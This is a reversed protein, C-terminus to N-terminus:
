ERLFVRRNNRARVLRTVTDTKFAHMRDLLLQPDDRFNTVAGTEAWIALARREAAAHDSQSGILSFEFNAFGPITGLTRYGIFRVADYPDGLLQTLYPAMWSTGSVQQAAPWAMSQAVIARQGADGSLLWLISAAISRDDDTLQPRAIRYWESLYQSTWESTKDLHCLNCASPRGTRISDAVSPSTIQHSRITKLLGYTTLPMHCNYCSSGTSPAAHKTHQSPNQRFKQHCQLCAENDAMDTKLQDNAWEAPARPDAPSEHLTHCSFCSLTHSDDRANRYCPSEIMANYERGTVRVMGDPWFSDKVFNPDDNLIGKLTPADLNRTPQALFRTKTLDDGPRYPFGQFNAEREGKEDYFEWVSHCQGCVQSGRKRDLMAPNTITTDDRGTLHYLYRRWPNRNARAHGGGPGHCAECAIGFETSHTDVVQTAVPQSRFPTDFRPKANTTHCAVCVANWSGTESFVYEPPHMVAARRPIWRQEPVLYIGPLHGLVRSNGTPYWYIQQHHSGTIMTIQRSIRPAAGSSPASDPDDFEAWFQSNQRWLRMPRGYVGTVEVNDFNARVTQPTAVQTMTRHFSSRWTAYEGPHCAQCPKSSVYDDEPVEVPRMSSAVDPQPRSVTYVAVGLGLGVSAIIALTVIRGTGTAAGPVM